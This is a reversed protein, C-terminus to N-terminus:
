RSPADAAKKAEAAARLREELGALLPPPPARDRDAAAERPQSRDPTALKAHTSPISTSKEHRPRPTRHRDAAPKKRAPQSGRVIPPKADISAIPPLEEQQIKPRLMPELRATGTALPPPRSDALRATDAHTPPKELHLWTFGAGAGAGVGLLVAAAGAIAVWRHAGQRGRHDDDSPRDTPQTESAEDFECPAEPPEPAEAELEDATDHAYTHDYARPSDDAYTRFGISRVGILGAEGRLAM